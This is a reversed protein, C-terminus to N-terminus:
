NVVNYTRIRRRRFKIIVLIILLLFLVGICIGVIMGTENSPNIPIGSRDNLGLYLIGSNFPNGINTRLIISSDLVIPQDCLYQISPPHNIQLVPVIPLTSVQSYGYITGEDCVYVYISDKASLTPASLNHFHGLVSWLPEQTGLYYAYLSKTTSVFIRNERTAYGIIPETFNLYQTLNGNSTQYFFLYSLSTSQRNTPSLSVVVRDINDDVMPIGLDFTETPFNPNIIAFNWLLTTQGTTIDFNFSTLYHASINASSHTVFLQNTHTITPVFVKLELPNDVTDFISDVSWVRSGDNVNILLYSSNINLNTGRNTLLLLNSALFEM